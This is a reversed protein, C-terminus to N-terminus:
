LDYLKKFDEFNKILIKKNFILKKFLEIDEENIKENFKVEVATKNFVFDIEKGFEYCYTPKKSRLKLFVLNEFLAGFDKFGVFVNRIGGDAIYIKKPSYISENLNKSKKYVIYILYNEKFYSIYESVTEEKIRLISALKSYTLRKGVRECLLNFLELIKEKNKLNHKLIIDKLIIDNILSTIIQPDEKLVYEPMGGYKLYDKFFKKYLYSESKKVKIDKFILFEEFDLPEIEFVFNRGTLFAKKDSLISASSSSVFIEVKENDHLVKLWNLYEKSYTIEDLFLYTEEKKGLGQIEKYEKFIEGLTKDKLEPHDMSIYFIHKPNIGKGILRRIFLKMITTKGVRRIGTIFIIKNKNILKNLKEIYKERNIAEIEFKEEWWPNYEYFLEEM